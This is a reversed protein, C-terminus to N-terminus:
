KLNVFLEVLSVRLIHVCLLYCSKNNQYGELFNIVVPIKKPVVVKAPMAIINELSGVIKLFIKIFNGSNQSTAPETSAQSITHVTDLESIASMAEAMTARRIEAAIVM